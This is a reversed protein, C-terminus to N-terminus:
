LVPWAGAAAVEIFSNREPINGTDLTGSLNAPLVAAVM